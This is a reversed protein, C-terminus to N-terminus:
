KKNKESSDSNRGTNIEVKPFVGNAPVKGVETLEHYNLFNFPLEYSVHGSKNLAYVLKAQVTKQANGFADSNLIFLLSYITEPNTKTFKWQEIDFFGNGARLAVCPYTKDEYELKFDYISLSRGKHLKVFVVAYAYHKFDFDYFDNDMNKIVIPNRTIEASLVNGLRFPLTDSLLEFGSGCLFILIVLKLMNMFIYGQKQEYIPFIFSYHFFELVILSLVTFIANNM